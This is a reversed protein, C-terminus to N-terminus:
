NQELNHWFSLETSDFLVPASLSLGIVKKHWMINIHQPLIYVHYLM